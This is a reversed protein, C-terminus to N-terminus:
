ISISSPEKRLTAEAKSQLYLRVGPFFYRGLNEAFTEFFHLVQQLLPRAFREERLVGYPTLASFVQLERLAPFYVVRLNKGFPSHSLFLWSAIFEGHHKSPLNELAEPFIKEPDHLEFTLGREGGVILIEM